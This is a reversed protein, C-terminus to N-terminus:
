ETLYKLYKEEISIIWHELDNILKERSRGELLEKVICRYRYGLGFKTLLKRLATRIAAKSQLVDILPGQLGLELLVLGLAYLGGGRENHAPSPGNLATSLYPTWSGCNLDSEYRTFFRIKCADLDYLWHTDNYQLAWQALKAALLLRDRDGLKMSTEGRSHSGLLKRLTLIPQAKSRANASPSGVSPCTSKLLFEIRTRSQCVLLHQSGVPSTIITSCGTPNETHPPTPTPTLPRSATLGLPHGAAYTDMCTNLDLTVFFSCISDMPRVSSPDASVSCLSLHTFHCECDLERSLLNYLDNIVHNQKSKLQESNVPEGPTPLSSVTSTQLPDSESGSPEIVLQRVESIISIEKDLGALLEELRGTSGGPCKGLRLREFVPKETVANTQVPVEPDGLSLVRLIAMLGWLFTLTTEFNSRADRAGEELIKMISELATQAERMSNRLRGYSSGLKIKIDGELLRENRTSAAPLFYGLIPIRLIYPLIDIRLVLDRSTNESVKQRGRTSKTAGGSGRIGQPFDAEWASSGSLFKIESRFLTKATLIRLKLKKATRDLTQYPDLFTEVRNFSQLVSAALSITSM